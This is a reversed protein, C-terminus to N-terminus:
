PIQRVFCFTAGDRGVEVLVPADKFTKRDENSRTNVLVLDGSQIQNLETRYDLVGIFAPAYAAAIYPERRVFLNLRTGSPPIQEVAEKYCTLWYDTEFRRFAGGTGGVFSNYYAYEYPHIHATALVAPLVLSRFLM